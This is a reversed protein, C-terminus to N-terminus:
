VRCAREITTVLSEGKTFVGVLMMHFLEDDPDKTELTRVSHIRIWEVPNSSQSVSNKADSMLSESFPGTKTWVERCSEEYLRDLARVVSMRARPGFKSEVGIAEITSRLSFLFLFIANLSLTGPVNTGLVDVVERAGSACNFALNRALTDAQKEIFKEYKSKLFWSM